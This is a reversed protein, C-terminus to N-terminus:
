PAGDGSRKMSQLTALDSAVVMVRDRIRELVIGMAKTRDGIVLDAETAAAVVTLEDGINELEESADLVARSV